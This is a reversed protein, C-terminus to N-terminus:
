GFSICSFVFVVTGGGVVAGGAVVCACAEAAYLFPVLPTAALKMVTSGTTTPAPQAQPGISTAVNNLKKYTARLRM